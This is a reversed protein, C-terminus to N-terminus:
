LAGCALQTPNLPPESYFIPAMAILASGSSFARAVVIRLAPRLAAAGPAPLSPILPQGCVCPTTAPLPERKPLLAFAPM